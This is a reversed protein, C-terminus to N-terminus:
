KKSAVGVLVIGDVGGGSVGAITLNNANVGSDGSVPCALRGAKQFTPWNMIRYKTRTWDAGGNWTSWVRATPTATSHSIYGVEATPFKIDWVNGTGYGSFTIQTWTAGGNLTYYVSGTTSTGIYILKENIVELAVISSGTPTSTTTAWTVGSNTTVIVVGAAGVAYIASGSGKIRFLNSSTVTGASLVSVGQTIDTSKYLYGGDGCFYIERPGAVYIDNPSGAAVFGTSVKTWTTDPVGTDQNVLSYHIADLGLVVLYGGVFDIALPDETAGFSTINMQSWNSGGDVTYIVEAPLGASGGSSKTVAYIRQTGDDCETCPWVPGYVADIVERDAQTTATEGFSLSGVPYVDSLVVSLGDELPEDADFSSRTGLDKDTVIANSYVLVYDSWGGTFDSLDGCTGTLEYLNFQCNQKLLQRPIAGHKERMKISANALDPPDITRGVLKFKGSHNPDHVWVPNVGGSEPVGVGDITLYQTDQGAYQVKNAPRPGGFQIFNRKHKSSVIEDVTLDPM